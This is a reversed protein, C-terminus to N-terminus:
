QCASESQSNACSYNGVQRNDRFRYLASVRKTQASEAPTLM